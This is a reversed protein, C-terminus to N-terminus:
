RGERGIVSSMIHECLTTVIERPEGLVEPLLFLNGDTCRELTEIHLHQRDRRQALFLAKSVVLGVREKEHRALFSRVRKQQEKELGDKQVMNVITGGIGFGNNKLVDLIEKAEVVPMEEPTAVVYFRSFGKDQLLRQINITEDRMAGEPVTKIVATPANLLAISHGTAPADVVVKPVFGLDKLGHTAVFLLKGLVLIESIGPVAQILASVFPNEFVIKYISRFRLKMLGYEKLADQWQVMCSYLNEQVMVPEYGKGECGFFEPVRQKGSTEVVLCKYGLKAYALGMSTAITTRGVGGKGLIVTLQPIKV